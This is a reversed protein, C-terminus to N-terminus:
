FVCLNGIRNNQAFRLIMRSAIILDELLFFRDGDLNSQTKGLMM